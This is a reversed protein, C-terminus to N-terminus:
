SVLYGELQSVLQSELLLQYEEYGSWSTLRAAVPNAVLSLRRLNGGNRYEWAARRGWWPAITLLHQKAQM